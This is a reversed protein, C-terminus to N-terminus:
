KSGRKGTTRYHIYNNSGSFVTVASSAVNQANLGTKQSLTGFHFQLLDGIKKM